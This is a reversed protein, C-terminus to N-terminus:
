CPMRSSVTHQATSIQETIGSEEHDWPSYGVLSRQGHPNELGRHRHPNELCSYQLLNGHGGGLSRGLGPTSGLNRANGASEKGDSGGPFGLFVPTPLRDRRWWVWWTYIRMVWRWLWSVSSICWGLAKQKSSRWLEGEAWWGHTVVLRRDLKM